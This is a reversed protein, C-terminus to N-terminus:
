KEARPAKFGAYVLYAGLGLSFTAYVYILQAYHLTGLYFDVAAGPSLCMFLLVKLLTLWGLLTVVAAAAGGSWINHALVMALGASLTIVGVIFMLARDHVLATVTEITSDKHMLMAVAVIIFFLGLLRSLFRTRSLM